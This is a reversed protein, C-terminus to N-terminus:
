VAEGPMSARLWLISSHEEWSVTCFTVLIYPVSRIGTSRSEAAISLPNPTNFVNLASLLYYLVEKDM